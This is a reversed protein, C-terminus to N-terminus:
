IPRATVPSSWPGQGASGTAAVRFWYRTGSILGGVTCSSKLSTTGFKWDGDPATPETAYQVIFSKGAVLRPWALDVEGPGDGTTTAIPGPATPLSNNSPEARVGMGASLIQAADGGSANEVYSALQTLLADVADEATDQALTAIQSQKRIDEAATTRATLTAGAAQVAALTPNPSPYAANGTMATVVTDILQTKETITLGALALKVKSM